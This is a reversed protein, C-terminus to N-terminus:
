RADPVPVAPTTAVEEADATAAPDVSGGRAKTVVYLVLVVAWAVLSLVLQPRIEPDLAM